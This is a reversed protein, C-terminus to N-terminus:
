DICFFIAPQASNTVSCTESMRKKRRAVPDLLRAPPCPAPLTEGGRGPPHGAIDCHVPLPQLTPEALAVDAVKQIHRVLRRVGLRSQDGLVWAAFM